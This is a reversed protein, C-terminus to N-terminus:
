LVKTKRRLLFYYVWCAIGIVAYVLASRPSESFLWHFTGDIYLFSFPALSFFIAIGLMTSRMRLHQKTRLLTKMEDTPTLSDAEIKPLHPHERSASRAFEPNSEFFEEVLEKTEKSCEANYYLPLIDRIVESTVRM